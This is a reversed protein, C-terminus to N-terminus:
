KVGLRMRYGFMVDLEKGDFYREVRLRFSHIDQELDTLGLKLVTQVSGQSLLLGVYRDATCREMNHFVIERTYRFVGSERIHTLHDNKNWRHVLDRNAVAVAIIDDAKTMLSLYEEELMWHLTPPWDYDYVAFIGGVRLIRDIEKLTSGPEMWHFSQSCTVIDVSAPEASIQDAYGSVFSIPQAGELQNLKELAINRMDENPEVGIIQDAHDQWIFTSLGTGCGLDIILSPRHGVYRTLVQVVQQPAVPRHQDYLNAFGSFRNVNNSLHNSQPM